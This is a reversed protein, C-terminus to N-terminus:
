IRGHNAGYVVKLAGHTGFDLEVVAPTRNGQGLVSTITSAGLAKM